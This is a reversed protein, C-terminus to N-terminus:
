VSQYGASHIWACQRQFEAGFVEEMTALGWGCWEEECGAFPLLMWSRLLILNEFTVKGSMSAWESTRRVDLRGTQSLFDCCSSTDGHCFLVSYHAAEFTILWESITSGELAGGPNSRHQRKHDINFWKRVPWPRHAALRTRQFWAESGDQEQPADECVTV